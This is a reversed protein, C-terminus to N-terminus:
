VQPQQGGADVSPSRHNAGPQPPIEQDQLGHGTGSRRFCRIIKTQILRAVLAIFLLFILFKGIMGFFLGQTRITIEVPDSIVSGQSDSLRLLLNVKDPETPLDATMQTTISGKAPIWLQDPVHVMSGPPGQYSIRADVPLPLGNRAVILLPSSQSVRTYVYGPPLLSVSSQLQELMERNLTFLRDAHIVAATHEEANRRGLVTLGRLLDLLLPRTFEYRTVAIQPDNVMLQTLDNIYNAQQTAALVESTSPVSPDPYPAGFGAGERPGNLERVAADLATTTATDPTTAEHLSQPRARGTSLLEDVVDLLKAGNTATAPSAPPVIIVPDTSKGQQRSNVRSADVTLRVAASSTTLRAHVSDLAPDYRTEPNSYGVTLPETGTTALTAALSGQYTVGTIGQRLGVFRGESPAAWVSNDTVLVRVATNMPPLEEQPQPDPITPDELSATDTTHHVTPLGNRQRYEWAAEPDVMEDPGTTDALPLWDATSETVYGSLPIVLNQEPETELIDALVSSGRAVAERLLWQNGTRTVANIDTGAWPLAVTCGQNAATRLRSLWEEAAEAGTGPHGSTARNGDDRRRSERLRRTGSVPSLRNDTVTYGDRMRDVVVLLQPDIALCTAGRLASGEDGATADLYVDLLQDLRGGERLQAALDDNELLLPASKPAEGTEGPVLGTRATLPWLVTVGPAEPLVGDDRNRSHLEGTVPDSVPLLFRESTLYSVIGEGLRGNLNVMMPYVGPTDIDLGNKSGPSTDLPLNVTVSEGPDLAGPADIFPGTYGYTSQEGTLSLRATAADRVAEGRQLRLSLEGVVEDSTNTVRVEVMRETGLPVEDLPSTLEVVVGSDADTKRISSNRWEADGSVGASAGPVTRNQASAIMVSGSTGGVVTTTLVAILAAGTLRHAWRGRYRRPVSISRTVPVRLFDSSIM